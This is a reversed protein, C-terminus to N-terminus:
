GSDAPVLSFRNKGPLVLFLAHRSMAHEEQDPCCRWRMYRWDCGGCKQCAPRPQEPSKESIAAQPAGLLERHRGKAGALLGFYRVRRFSRPVLHRSFCRLFTAGHMTMEKIKGGDKYDKYEFSVTRQQEDIRKIRQNSMAIRSTYRALYRVVARTNNLTARSFINWNRGALKVRWTRRAEISELEVPWRVEPASELAEIRRLLIAGFVKSMSRVPFLYNDRAQRWRGTSLDRGGSSVLVHLHPHWNLARGWTHLVGLFGGDMKWNNNQFLKLTESAAGFLEEAAIRYNHEFFDHLEEPVTFVVHFHPCDPLRECVKESWQAQRPGLCNPCHRNGCSSAYWEQHRCDQCRAHNYGLPGQRCLAMLNLTSYEEKQLGGPWLDRWERLISNVTAEISNVHVSRVRVRL